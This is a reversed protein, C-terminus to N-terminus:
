FEFGEVDHYVSGYEAQLSKKWMEDKSDTTKVMESVDGVCKGMNLMKDKTLKHQEKTCSGSVDGSARSWDTEASTSSDSIRMFRQETPHTPATTLRSPLQQCSPLLSFSSEADASTNPRSRGFPSLPRSISLQQAETRLRDVASATCPRRPPHSPIALVPDNRRVKDLHHDGVLASTSQSLRARLPHTATSPCHAKEYPLKSLDRCPERPGHVSDHKLQLLLQGINFGVDDVRDVHNTPNVPMLPFVANSSPSNMVSQNHDSHRATFSEDKALEHHGRPCFVPEPELLPEQSRQSMDYIKHSNTQVRRSHYTRDSQDILPQRNHRSRRRSCLVFFCALLFGFIAAGVGIGAYEVTHHHLFPSSGGSDSGSAAPSDGASTPSKEISPVCASPSNPTAYSFWDFNLTSAKSDSNSAPALTVTHNKCPLGALRFVKKQMAGKEGNPVSAAAEDASVQFPVSTGNELTMKVNTGSANYLLAISLSDGPFHFKLNADSRNTTVASGNNALSDRLVSWPSKAQTDVYPSPGPSFTISPDMDDVRTRDTVAEEEEREVQAARPRITWAM